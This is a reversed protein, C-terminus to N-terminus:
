CSGFILIEYNPKRFGDRFYYKNKQAIKYNKCQEIQLQKEAENRHLGVTQQIFNKM